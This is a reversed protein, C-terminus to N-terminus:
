KKIMKGTYSRKETRVNYVYVGAALGHVSIMEQSGINQRILVKGQMDYLTFVANSINEPLTININDTTPNPYISITSVEKNEEIANIAEFSAVFNTDQTLTFTRPNDTNADNWYLFQYGRHAIASITVRSNPAYNGGGIASGRNADSVFLNVHYPASFIATFTTDQTLTFTRPNDTNGDDWQAFYYGQKAIAGITVASNIPYEGDGAVIGMSTNNTQVTVQHTIIEFTAVFVTDSLVTISRPNDTNDDNWKVFRYYPHPIAEM